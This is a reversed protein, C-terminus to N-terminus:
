NPGNPTASSFKPLARGTPRSTDRSFRRPAVEGSINLADAGRGFWQGAVEISKATTTRGQSYKKEEYYTEAQGASLRAERCHRAHSIGEIQASSAATEHRQKGPPVFVRRAQQRKSSDPPLGAPKLEVSQVWSSAEFLRSIRFDHGEGRRYGTVCLYGRVSAAIQIESASGRRKEGGTSPPHITFAMPLSAGAPHESRCSRPHSEREWRDTCEVLARTEAKATHAPDAQHAPAAALLQARTTATSPRSAPHHAQLARAGRLAWAQTGACSWRGRARGSPRLVPLEDAIIGSKQGRSGDDAM